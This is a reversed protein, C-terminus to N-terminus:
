AADFDRRDERTWGEGQAPPVARTRLVEEGKALEFPAGQGMLASGARPIPGVGERYAQM